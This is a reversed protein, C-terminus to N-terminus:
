DGDIAADVEILETTGAILTGRALDMRLCVFALQTVQLPLDRLPVEEVPDYPHSRCRVPEMEENDGTGGAVAVGGIAGNAATTVVPNTIREGYKSFGTCQETSCLEPPSSTATPTYM